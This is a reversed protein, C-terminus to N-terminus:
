REFAEVRVVCPAGVAKMSLSVVRTDATGTGTGAVLDQGLFRSLRLPYAEGPGLEIVPVFLGLWSLYVGVEVYHVADLNQLWVMGPTGLQSLDVNTHTVAVTIAGPTPGKPTASVVDARFTSPRSRYDLSGSRVSLSAQVTIENAM